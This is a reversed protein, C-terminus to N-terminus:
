ESREGYSCFDDDNGSWCLEHVGIGRSELSGVQNHICEKCRVLPTVYVKTKTTFLAPKIDLSHEDFLTETAQRYDVVYANNPTMRDLMYEILAKETRKVMEEVFPRSSCLTYDATAEYIKPESM